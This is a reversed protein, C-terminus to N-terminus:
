LKKEHASRRECPSAAMSRLIGLVRVATRPLGSRLRLACGYGDEQGILLFVLLLLVMALYLKM